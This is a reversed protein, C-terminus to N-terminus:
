FKSWLYFSETSYSPLETIDDFISDFEFLDNLAVKPTINGTHLDVKSSDSILYTNKANDKLYAVKQKNYAKSNLKRDQFLIKDFSAAKFRIVGSQIGIFKNSKLIGYGELDLILKSSGAFIDILGQDRLVYGVPLDPHKTGISSISYNKLLHEVQTQDFSDLYLKNSM